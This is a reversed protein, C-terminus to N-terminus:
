VPCSIQMVQEIITHLMQAEGSESAKYYVEKGERRAVILKSSKLERLHHSIAPSSMNMLFAIDTVCEEKHCLFWFIRLRTPDGLQKFIEAVIQFNETKDLQEKFSNVDFDDGHHHPLSEHNNDTIHQKTDITNHKKDAM